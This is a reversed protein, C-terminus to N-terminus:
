GGAVSGKERSFVVAGYYVTKTGAFIGLCGPMVTTPISDYSVYEWGDRAAENIVEQLRGAIAEGGKKNAEKESIGPDFSVVRYEKM